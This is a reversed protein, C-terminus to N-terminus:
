EGQKESGTLVNRHPKDFVSAKNKDYPILLDSVMVEEQKHCYLQWEFLSVRGRLRHCSSDVFTHQDRFSLSYLVHTSHFHLDITTFLTQLCNTSLESILLLTSSSTYYIYDGEEEKGGNVCLLWPIERSDCHWQGGPTSRSTRNEAM